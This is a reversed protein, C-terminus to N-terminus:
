VGSFFISCLLVQCRAADPVGPLQLTTYLGSRVYCDHFDV